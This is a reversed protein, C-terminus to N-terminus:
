SNENVTLPQVATGPPPAGKVTTVVPTAEALGATVPLKQAM